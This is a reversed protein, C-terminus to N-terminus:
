KNDKEITDKSLHIHIEDIIWGLLYCHAEDNDHDPKVHAKKMVMNTVHLAEHAIVSWPIYTDEKVFIYYAEKGKYNAEFALGRCSEIDEPDFIINLKKGEAIFDNCIIFVLKRTYIPINKVLTKM